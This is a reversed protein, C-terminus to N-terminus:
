EIYKLASNTADRYSVHIHGSNGVAISTHTGVFGAADVVVMRWSTATTCAAACTAYKLDASAFDYFAVHIRGRGDVALSPFQGDSGATELTVAQWNAATACAGACTAYKLDQTAADTYSVHLRGSAVVALSTYAGAFSADVTAAQWRATTTCPAACTAYKLVGSTPYSVHLRGSADVVLSTHQEVVALSDVTVVQWSAGTTCASVCTAYKLDQKTDDVYSVHLRGSADVALSTFRGVFGSTDVTTAQWNAALNCAGPGACTAYKLNGNTNDLYSVHLRGDGDVGLSTHHGVSGLSDVTTGSGWSEYVGQPVTCRSTCTVYELNGIAANYYTVHRRGSGDVVLSTYQGVNGTHATTASWARTAFSWRAAAGLASDATTRVGTTVEVEYTSDPLLPASLTATRTAADYSIAVSLALGATTVKFTAATLTAPDIAQNFTVTVAAGTEVETANPAPTMASIELAPPPTPSSGDDGGCATLGLGLIFSRTLAHM